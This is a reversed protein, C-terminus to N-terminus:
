PKHAKTFPTTKGQEHEKLAEQLAKKDDKTMEEGLTEEISELRQRIQRLERELKTTAM